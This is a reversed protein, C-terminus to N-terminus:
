LDIMFAGKRSVAYVRENLEKSERMWRSTTWKSNSSDIIILKPEFHMLIEELSYRINDSLIVYDLKLRRVPNTPKFDRDVLAITAGYFQIFKGKFFINENDIRYLTSIIHKKKAKDLDIYKENEIGLDYWNHRVHFMMKGKNQVLHLDAFLVNDKGDIFNYASTKRINYVIFKRQNQQEFSEYWQYGLFGICVVMAVMLVKAKKLALYALILLIFLYIAWCEAVTISIGSTMSHPLKEVFEVSLNLGQILKKMCWALVNSIEPIPSSIFVLFGFYLILTALPIVLLNSLFFYNPFQHFYLLGLPFTAIQAAISVATIAWIKDLLWYKVYFWNYIKPQLYVIGIVALYSLQFGVEMILFPNFLLLVFASVGLTNYINTYRRLAGGLIIFSFMTAARMVSPSMGTLMAYFWLLVILLIAKVYRGNKFRNFFFLLSNLVLFVIGVHLGSVALVHMAGSSSYSRVLSEDLKDKYGLVLASAVAFEDGYIHNEKLINMLRKRALNASQLLPNGEDSNLKRWKDSRIYAQQYILHFALYQRYDFESPNKPPEINNFKPEILLQDGYKITSSASDKQFYVIAKGSTSLWQNRNKIATVQLVVKLSNTKESVPEIVEGVIVGENEFHNSYHSEDFKSTHEVVLQFGAFCLTFHTFVGFWLNYRYNSFLKRVLFLSLLLGVIVYFLYLSVPDNWEAYISFIIGAVFPLLLRLFPAKRWFDM